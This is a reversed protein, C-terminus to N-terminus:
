AGGEQIDRLVNRKVLAYNHGHGGRCTQEQVSTILTSPVLPVAGGTAESVYPGLIDLVFKRETPGELVLKIKTV